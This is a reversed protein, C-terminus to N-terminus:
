AAKRRAKGKRQPAGNRHGRAKRALRVATPRSRQGREKVVVAPQSLENSYDEVDAVADGNLAKRAKWSKYASWLAYLAGAAILAVVAYQVYVSVGVYPEIQEKIASLAGTEQLAGAATATGVVTGTVKETSVATVKVSSEDARHPAPAAVPLYDGVSGFAWMQSQRKIGSIRRTWGKGFVAFTSLAQVFAQRRRCFEACLLDPDRDAAVAALTAAAFVGDVKLAPSTGRANLSAQLIKIARSPGSNVGCDYVVLDVGVPLDDGRVMRWYNNIYIEKREAEAIKWVDQPPRGKSRRYADYVRQIVGYATRGGPDKPHDVKGGEWQATVKDCRDFGNASM